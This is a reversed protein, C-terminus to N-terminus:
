QSKAMIDNNHKSNAQLNTAVINGGHFRPLLYLICFGSTSIEIDYPALKTFTHPTSNYNRIFDQFIDVYGLTEKQTIHKYIYRQITLQFREITSAKHNSRSIIQKVGKNKLYRAVVKNDMEPGGDCVITNPLRFNM